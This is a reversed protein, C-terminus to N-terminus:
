HLTYLRKKENPHSDDRKEAILVLTYHRQERALANNQMHPYFPGWLDQHLQKRENTYNILPKDLSQSYLM